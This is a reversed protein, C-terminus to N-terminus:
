LRRCSSTIVYHMTEMAAAAGGLSLTRMAQRCGSMEGNVKTFSQLLQAVVAPNSRFHRVEALLEKALQEAPSKGARQGVCGLVRVMDATQLDAAWANGIEYM